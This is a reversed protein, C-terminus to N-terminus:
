PTRGFLWKAIRIMPSPNSVIAQQVRKLRQQAMPYARDLRVQATNARQQAVRVQLLRSRHEIWAANARRRREAADRTLSRDGMRLGNLWDQHAQRRARGAALLSSASGRAASVAKRLNHTALDANFQLRDLTDKAKDALDVLRQQEPTLGEFERDMERLESYVRALPLNRGYGRRPHPALDYLDIM